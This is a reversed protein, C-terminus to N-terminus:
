AVPDSETTPTDTTTTNGETTTEGETSTNNDEVAPPNLFSDAVNSYDYIADILALVAISKAQSATPEKGEELKANAVHYARYSALNYKANEVSIAENGITGSVTVAIDSTFEAITMDSLTIKRDSEATVTVTNKTSGYTFTVTGEFGSRLTFVYEPASDLKVNVKVFAKGLGSKEAPTGYNKSEESIGFAAKYEDVLDSLTENASGKAFKYAENAYNLASFVVQKEAENNSEEGSLVKKAYSAINVNFTPTYEIDGIPTVVVFAVTEAAKDPTIRATAVLYSVEKVTKEVLEVVEDGVRVEKISDKYDIPIYLNADFSTYLSFNVKIDSNTVAATYDPTYIINNGAEDVSSTFEGTFYLTMFSGPVVYTEAIVPAEWTAGKAYSAKSCVTGSLEYYTVNVTNEESVTMTPLVPLTVNAKAPKLVKKQNTGSGEIVVNGAPYASVDVAELSVIFENQVISAKAEDIATIYSFVLTDGDSAGNYTMQVNYTLNKCGEAVTAENVYAATGDGSIVNEAYDANIAGNTICGNFVVTKAAAVTGSILEDGNGRAYIVCNDFIISSAKEEGTAKILKSGPAALAIVSNTVNINATSAGAEFMARGAAADNQNNYSLTVGDINISSNNGASSASAITAGAITLNSGSHTEGLNTVTGVNIHSNDANINFLITGMLRYDDDAKSNYGGRVEIYADERSSYINVTENAAAKIAWGLKDGTGNNRSDITLKNGNLDINYVKDGSGGIGTPSSVSFQINKLFVLTEGYSFYIGDRSEGKSVYGNWHTGYFDAYETYRSFNGDRDLIVIAAESPLKEYGFVPYYTIAGGANNVIDSFTLPRIPEAAEAGIETSWGLQRYVTCSSKEIIPAKAEFKLAAGPYVPTEALFSESTVYKSADKLDAPNNVDGVFWKITVSGLENLAPDFTYSYYNGNEDMIIDAKYSDESLAISYGNAYVTGKATVTQPETVDKTLTVYTGIAEAAAFAEEFSAYQKGAVSLYNTTNITETSFAKGENVLYSEPMHNEYSENEYPYTEYTRVMVNDFLTSLSADTGDSINVRPGYIQATGTIFAVATGVFEGNIYYYATGGESSAAGGTHAEPNTYLIISVHNWTDKDLTFSSVEANINSFTVTGDQVVKITPDAGTIAGGGGTDRKNVNLTFPVFGAESDTAIEIDMVIVANANYKIANPNFSLNPHNSIANYTFKLSTNSGYTVGSMQGGPNWSMYSYPIDHSNKNYPAIQQEKKAGSENLIAQWILAETLSAGTSAYSIVGLNYDKTEVFNGDVDVLFDGDADKEYKSTLVFPADSDTIPDYVFKLYSLNTPVSLKEENGFKELVKVNMTDKDVTMLYNYVYPSFRVGEYIYTPYKASTVLNQIVYPVIVQSGSNLELQCSSVFDSKIYGNHKLISGDNLVARASTTATLCIPAYSGEVLTNNLIIVGAFSTANAGIAGTKGSNSSNTTARNILQSNSVEVVTEKSSSGHLKIIAVNSLMSSNNVSVYGDGQVWILGANQGEGDKGNINVADFYVKATSEDSSMYVFSETDSVGSVEIELNKFTYTGAIINIFSSSGAEYTVYIPAKDGAISVTPANNTDTDRSVIFTEPSVISGKGTISFEVKGTLTFAEEVAATLTNGGLDITVNKSVTYHEDLTVDNVLYVTDGSKAAEFAETFTSYQKNGVMAVNGSDASAVMVLGACVIAFSLVLLLVKTFKKM